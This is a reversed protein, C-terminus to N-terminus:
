INNSTKKNRKNPTFIDPTDIDFKSKPKLPTTMVGGSVGSNNNLNDNQSQHVQASTTHVQFVPTAPNAAPVNSIVKSIIEVPTRQINSTQVEEDSVVTLSKNSNKTFKKSM